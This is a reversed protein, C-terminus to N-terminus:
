RTVDTVKQSSFGVFLIGLMAVIHVTSGVGGAPLGLAPGLPLFVRGAVLCFFSAILATRVGWRDALGGFLFMAITIGATAIGVM